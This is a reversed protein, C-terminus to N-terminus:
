EITFLRAVEREYRGLEHTVRAADWGLRPALREALQVAAALGHDRLEFALHTRRILLDGLTVAMERTVAHVAEALTYPLADDLRARLAVDDRTPRWVERWDSGYAGVLRRAVDADGIAAEADHETAALSQMAGGPLLVERHPRGPRETEGLAACVRDVVDEAMARYTTLKGGTVWLVGLAGEGITHERSASGAEHDGPTAALPRIGSWASMVDDDRLQAAPFNANCAALLYRVEERTPRIDDPGRAAPTETTGIITQMGAPLVFMVRGDQPAVLTVAARNGVRLRPVAIHVGASGLVGTHSEGGELPQVTDTWPGVASVICRARVTVEGGGVGDRVIAGTARGRGHVNGRVLTTVEAYNLVTAGADAAGLANALTLRADDTAADWYIAGGALGLTSLEPERAIVGHPTLRRHNGVNRFLALADYLTLGALLKWQAVRAGAYVPWTFELPRVLHPAMRLLRRRERSSEFVLHLHGHELYRVGGHVLRSSRSSTGSAFDGKECLAVRLGRLAADRAVGCGVIGGGIVLLDFTERALASVAHDRWPRSSADSM